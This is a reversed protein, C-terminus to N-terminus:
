LWFKDVAYEGVEAHKEQAAVRAAMTAGFGKLEGKQVKQASSAELQEERTRAYISLAGLLTSLDTSLAVHAAVHGSLRRLLPHSQRQLLLTVFHADLIAQM